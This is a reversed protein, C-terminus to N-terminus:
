HCPALVLTAVIGISDNEYRQYNESVSDVRLILPHKAWLHVLVVGHFSCRPQETPGAPNGDGLEAGTLLPSLPSLIPWSPDTGFKRTQLAWRVTEYWVM